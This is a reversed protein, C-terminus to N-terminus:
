FFPVLQELNCLMCVFAGNENYRFSRTVIVEEDQCRSLVRTMRVLALSVTGGSGDYSTITGKGSPFSLLRCSCRM